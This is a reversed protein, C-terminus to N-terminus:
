QAFERLWLSIDLLAAALLLRIFDLAKVIRM